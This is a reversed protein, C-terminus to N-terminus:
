LLTHWKIHTLLKPLHPGIKVVRRTHMAHVIGHCSTQRDTQRDCELTTDLRNYMDEVNKVMPYGWWELKEMGFLIAIIRRVGRVPADFAFPYSFIRNEVLIESERKIKYYICSLAM